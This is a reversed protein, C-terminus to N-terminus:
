RAARSPSSAASELNNSDHLLHVNAVDLLSLKRCGDTAVPWGEEDGGWAELSEASVRQSQEQRVRQTVSSCSLSESTRRRTSALLLCFRSCASSPITLKLHM